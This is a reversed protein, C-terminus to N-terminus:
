RTTLLWLIKLYHCSSYRTLLSTLKNGMVWLVKLNKLEGIEKPLCTLNNYPLYLEELNQLICIESPVSSLSQSHLNLKVLALLSDEDRPFTKEPLKIENAWLILTQIPKSQITQFM